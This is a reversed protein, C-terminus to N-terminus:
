YVVRQNQATRALARVFSNPLTVSWSAGRDTTRYVGATPEGVAAGRGTGALAVMQDTPDVSIVNVFENALGTDVPRWSEGGNTTQFAGGGSSGAYLANPNVEVALAAVRVGDLDRKTWQNDGLLPAAAAPPGIAARLALLALLGGGASRSPRWGRRRPPSSTPATCPAAALRRGPPAAPNPM